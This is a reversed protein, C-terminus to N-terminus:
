SDRKQIRYLIGDKFLRKPDPKGSAGVTGDPLLYRHARALELGNVDRYSVMESKTGFPLGVEPSPAGSHVVVATVEGTEAREPFREENFM